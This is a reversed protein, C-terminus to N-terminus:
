DPQNPTRRCPGGYPSFLTRSGTRETQHYRTALLKGLCNLKWLELWLFLLEEQRLGRRPAGVRSGLQLNGLTSTHSGGCSACSHVIIGIPENELVHTKSIM